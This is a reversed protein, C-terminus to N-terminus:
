LPLGAVPLSRVRQVKVPVFELNQLQVPVDAMKSTIKSSIETTLYHVIEVLEEKTRTKLWDRNQITKGMLDPDKLYETPM